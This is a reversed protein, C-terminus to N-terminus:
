FMLTDDSMEFKEEQHSQTEWANLDSSSRTYRLPKGGFVAQSPVTNVFSLMRRFNHCFDRSEHEPSTSAVQLLVDDPVQLLVNLDTRQKYEFPHIRIEGAHCSRDHIVALSPMSQTSFVRASRIELAPGQLREPLSRKVAFVQGTRVDIGLGRSKPKNQHPDNNLTSIAATSLSIQIRDSYKHALEDFRELIQTSLQQSIGEKDLYGGVIHLEMDIKVPTPPPPLTSNLDVARLPVEQEDFVLDPIFSPTRRRSAKKPRPHVVLEDDEMFLGVTPDLIENNNTANQVAQYFEGHHALHEQVMSELCADYAQDIHALSVFAPADGGGSTSRLAVVHCTTAEASVVIDAKDASVHAVEGQLVNLCRHQQALQLPCSMTSSVDDEQLLEEARSVVRPIRALFEDLKSRSGKTPLWLRLLEQDQSTTNATSSSSTTPVYLHSPSLPITAEEEVLTAFEFCSRCRKCCTTNTANNNANLCSSRTTTTTDLVVENTAPISGSPATRRM